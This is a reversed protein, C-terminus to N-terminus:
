CGSLACRVKEQGCEILCDIYLDYAIGLKEPPVNGRGYYNVLYHVISVRFRMCWNPDDCSSGGANSIGIESRNTIIQKAIQKVFLDTNQEEAVEKQQVKIGKAQQCSNLLFLALVLVISLYIIKKNM